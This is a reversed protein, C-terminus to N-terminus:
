LKNFCLLSLKMKTKANTFNAIMIDNVKFFLAIIRFMRIKWKGLINWLACIEKIYLSVIETEINVMLSCDDCDQVAALTIDYAFKLSKKLLIGNKRITAIMKWTLMIAMGLKHNSMKLM